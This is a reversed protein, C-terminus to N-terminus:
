RCYKNILVEFIKIHFKEDSIIKEIIKKIYIDDIEKHLLIYGNIANTEDLIDMELKLRINEKSNEDNGTNHENIKEGYGLNGADWFHHNTNYYFPKEGLMEILEGLTSLHNMEVLSICLLSNAIVKNQITMHHFVYQNVASMESSKNSAMADYLLEAYHANKGQVQVVPMPVDSKCPLSQIFRDVREEVDELLNLNVEKDM